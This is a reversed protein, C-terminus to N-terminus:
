FRAYYFSGDTFSIATLILAITVGYALMRAAVAVPLPSQAPKSWRQLVQSGLVFGLWLAATVLLARHNQHFLLVREPGGVQLLADVGLNGAGSFISRVLAIAKAVDASRFFILAMSVFNFVVARRIWLLVASDSPRLKAGVKVEAAFWLGHLAGWILFNFGFGHWIGSFLFVTMIACSVPVGRLLMPMYVYKELWRSFSRHWRRWYDSLSTALFPSHFNEMLEIGLMRSIGRAMDTYGSFDYYLQIYYLYSALLVPVAGEPAVPADFVSAVHPALRDAIIFKKFMGCIVLVVGREIIAVDPKRAERAKEFWERSDEIPGSLLKPFYLLYLLYEKLSDQPKETGWLVNLINGTIQLVVFAYGLLVLDVPLLARYAALALFNAALLTFYYGRKERRYAGKIAFYNSTGLALFAALTVPSLVAVVAASLAALGEIRSFKRLAGM